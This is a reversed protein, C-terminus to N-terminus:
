RPKRTAGYLRYRDSALKDDDEEAIREVYNIKIEELLATTMAQIERLADDKQIEERFHTGFSEVLQATLEGGREDALAKKLAQYLNKSVEASIQQTLQHSLTDFGPLFKLGQYAPAQTLAGDVSHALLADLEPKIQPLVGDVVVQTLRQAITQIENVGNIDIYRSQSTAEFLWRTIQGQRIMNQLQDIIRLFVVETLEVAFQSILVRNLRSRVPELNVLAAQNLRVVVPIVRLWRWFPLLLPVDYLRWLMADFWTTNAHRRSLVYTRALFELGFIAIFWIDVLWFRDVPLGNFDIGRWYNTLFLPRVEQEFFAIEDQWGAQRLYAASWFEEFADKSSEEEVRDRMLEKIRELTGSKGAVEFPNEDVIETSRDRLEELLQRTEVSRLGTTAVQTELRDVLSLYATTTREPEIGKFVAGYGQTLGPALRLYLDRFPIYSLDLLVLALNLTALLAMGREFWPTRRRSRARSLAAM